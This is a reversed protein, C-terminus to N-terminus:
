KKGKKGKKKTTGKKYKMFRWKGNCLIKVKRLAGRMKIVYTRVGVKRPKYKKNIKVTKCAM